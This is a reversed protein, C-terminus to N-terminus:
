YLMRLIRLRLGLPVITMLVRVTKYFFGPIVVRDPNKKEAQRAIAAAIKSPDMGNQEDKEMAGVAKKMAEGYANGPELAAKAYRRASTFGTKADGPLICSCKIGYPAVEMELTQMTISVAAKSASYLGQFPIPVFAAVSSVAIIRGQRRARFEPLCARVTNLFGFYNTDFQYRSEEDCTDEVSGAMGNGANCVVVDLRGEREIAEGVAAKVSEADCVDCVVGAIRGGSAEDSVDECGRRSAAYVIHGRRMLLEAAARGIGSSGGTLFIVLPKM